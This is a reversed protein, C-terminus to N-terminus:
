YKVDLRCSAQFKGGPVYVTPIALSNFMTTADDRLTTDTCLSSGDKTDGGFITFSVKAATISKTLRSIPTTGDTSGDLAPAAVSSPTTDGNKGYPMDGWLAFTFAAAKLKAPAAHSIAPNFANAVLALATFSMLTINKNM